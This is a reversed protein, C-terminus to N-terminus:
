KLFAPTIYAEVYAAALFIPVLVVMIILRLEKKYRTLQEAPLLVLKLGVAGALFLGTLEFVGHTMVGAALWKVTYGHARLLSLVSGIILGNM